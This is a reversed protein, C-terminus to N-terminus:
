YKLNASFFLGFPSGTQYTSSTGNAALANDASVITSIYKENTLNTATARFVTSKSGLFKTARYSIDLDVLAFADIKQTNAVDGYRSSTYKVSPTFSWKNLYYTFAGKAMFKPADPLQNGKINTTSSSSSSFDESFSYRNYSLGLLFEVDESLEGNASFEAGYGFAEGVNAPYNVDYSSDFINAQKNKVFSVFLTPNLTVGGVIAKAGFDINDSTELELNSWLDQLTVNNNVFATRSSSYVPYLNVDFGYTRSYDIYIASSQSLKYGLYLSPLFTHFTKSEISAYPDLTGNAIATDYDQSTSANTGNTYSDVSGLKFIQYQTGLAYNISGIEGNLEIFPAQLIHYDTKALTSYGDFVLNGGISKYKVQENPPGPPLQKHYWYGIKSKLKQSFVHEYSAVAGFLDHDMKWNIVRNKSSDSNNKSFWYSGKDKKYYPKISITDSLTPKFLIDALLTTTDFSQRNWDYFNVDNNASPRTASFDKSFYTNLNKAESYSLDYYNHHEDSNKIAYFQAKLSNNPEYTLGAMGNVRELDGEGKTKDSSLFSFSGFVSFDGFKGSDLRIFTRQFSDSGFSQSLTAKPTKSAELINMDVKGILSSFGLNKSVPLYGKLLDISSINEMDIMQKGGGPNSSIPMANIMYVGGPGSQSKARIRIPDHYSPENSGAADVPTFNVSPSFAIVTYPNMNAHTSLTSISKSTFTEKNTTESLNTDAMYMLYEDDQTDTVTIREISIPNAMLMCSAVLSLFLVRKRM